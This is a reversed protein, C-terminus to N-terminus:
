RDEAGQDVVDTSASGNGSLYALLADMRAVNARVRIVRGELVENVLGASRLQNL